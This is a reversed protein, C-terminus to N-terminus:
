GLGSRFWTFFCLGSHTAFCVAVGPLCPIWSCLALHTAFCAASRPRGVGAEEDRWTVLRNVSGGARASTSLSAACCADDTVRLRVRVRVRVRVNVRVRARARVRVRVRARVRVRVRVSVLSVLLRGGVLAGGPGVV